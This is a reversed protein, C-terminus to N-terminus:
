DHLLAGIIETVTQKLLLAHQEFFGALDYGIVEAMFQYTSHTIPGETNGLLVLWRHRRYREMVDYDVQTSLVLAVPLYGQSYAAAANALDANQRKADKSKYGQRIEFVAGHLAAAITPEVELSSAADTLWKQVRGRKDNNEIDALTIRGDLSLRRTSGQPQYSWTVQHKDLGMTDMFIQQILLECGLGLQRYLSTIGGAARHAAYVLPHDLGFWAYFPDTGYLARFDALSQEAGTGFRPQYGKCVALREMLLGLYAAESM